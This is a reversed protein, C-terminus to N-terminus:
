HKRSSRYRSPAGGGQGAGEQSLPPSASPTSEGPGGAIVPPPASLGPDGQTPDDGPEPPGGAATAAAAATAAPQAEEPEAAAGPEASATDAPPEATDPPGEEALDPADAVTGAAPDAAASAPAGAGAGPEAPHAEKSRNTVIVMLTEVLSRLRARDETLVAIVAPPKHLKSGGDGLKADLSSISQRVLLIKRGAERPDTLPGPSDLAEATATVSGGVVLSSYGCAARLGTVVRLDHGSLLASALPPACGSIFLEADNRVVASRREALLASRAEVM